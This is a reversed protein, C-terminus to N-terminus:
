RRLLRGLRSKKLFAARFEEASRPRKLQWVGSFVLNHPMLREATEADLSLTALALLWGRLYEEFRTLDDLAARPACWVVQERLDRISRTADLEFVVLHLTLRVGHADVVVPSAVGETRALDLSVQDGMSPREGFLRVVRAVLSEEQADQTLASNKNSM